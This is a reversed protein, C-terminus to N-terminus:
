AADGNSNGGRQQAQEVIEIFKSFNAVSSQIEDIDDTLQDKLERIDNRMQEAHDRLKKMEKSRSNHIAITGVAFIGVIVLLLTEM